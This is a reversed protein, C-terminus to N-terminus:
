HKIINEVAGWKASGNKPVIVVVEDGVEGKFYSVSADLVRWRRDDALVYYEGTESEELVGVVRRREIPNIQKFIFTGADTIILKLLDGEVLRSKSAYNVPVDYIKGDQGVMKEGDFLGEIINSEVEAVAETKKTETAQGTKIKIEEDSVITLLELLRSASDKLNQATKKILLLKNKSLVLTEAGANNKVEAPTAEEIIKELNEIKGLNIVDEAPNHAILDDIRAQEEPSEETSDFNGM